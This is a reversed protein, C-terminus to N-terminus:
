SSPLVESTKPGKSPNSSSEDILVDGQICLARLSTFNRLSGISSGDYYGDASLVLSELTDSIYLLPAAIRM